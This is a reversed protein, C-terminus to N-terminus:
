VVAPAKAKSKAKAERVHVSISATRKWGDSLRARLGPNHNIEHDVADLNVVVVTRTLRKFERRSIKREARLEALSEVSIQPKSIRYEASLVKDTGPISTQYPRGSEGLVFHGGGNRLARDLMAGYTPDLAARTRAQLDINTLYGETVADEIAQAAHRLTRVTVMADAANALEADTWLPTGVAPIRVTGNVAPLHRWAKAVKDDLPIAPITERTAEHLKTLEGTSSVAVAPRTTDLNSM